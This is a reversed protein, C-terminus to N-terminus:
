RIYYTRHVLGHQTPPLTLYVEPMAAIVGGPAGPPQPSARPTGWRPGAGSSHLGLHTFGSTHGWPAPRSLGVASGGARVRRLSLDVSTVTCTITKVQWGVLQGVSRGVSGSVWVLWGGEGVVVVYLLDNAAFPWIQPCYTTATLWMSLKPGFSDIKSVVVM